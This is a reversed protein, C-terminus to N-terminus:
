KEYIGGAEQRKFNEANKIYYFNWIDETSMNLYIFMKMFNIISSNILINLLDDNEKYVEYTKWKKYSTNQVIQGVSVVYAGILSFLSDDDNVLNLASKYYYELTSEPKIGLFLFQNLLFHWADILEFKSADTIILKETNNKNDLSIQEALEYLETIISLVYYGSEIARDTKDLNVDDPSLCNQRKNALAIQLSKQMDFMIDLCKEPNYTKQIM